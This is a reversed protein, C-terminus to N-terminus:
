LLGTSSSPALNMTTNTYLMKAPLNYPMVIANQNKVPDREVEVWQMTQDLGVESSTVKKYLVREEGICHGQGRNRILHVGVM